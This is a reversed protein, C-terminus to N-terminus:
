AGPMLLADAMDAATATDTDAADAMPMAAGATGMDAATATDTDAADGWGWHYWPGAGIFLAASLTARDTIGTPRAPM